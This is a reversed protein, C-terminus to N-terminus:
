DPDDEDRKKAKPSKASLANSLLLAAGDTVIEAGPALVQEPVFYGGATPQATSIPAAVFTGPAIQQYVFAKGNHWVVAALPVVVGSELAATDLSVALATGIPAANTRDTTYFLSQGGIRKAARPSRGVFHLTIHTGDPTTASATRPPDSFRTGLPLSVRVLLEEGEELAALPDTRSEIAAALASGWAARARAKLEVLAAAAMAQDAKAVALQSQANQLAALAINQGASYLAQARAAAAAALSAKAEDVAIKSGAAAREASLAALQAPDLVIGYAAIQPARRSRELAQMHLQAAKLATGDLSLTDLSGAQALRPWVVALASVVIVIWLRRRTGFSQQENM